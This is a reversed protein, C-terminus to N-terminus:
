KGQKATWHLPSLHIGPITLASTKILIFASGLALFNKVLQRNVASKVSMYTTRLTPLTGQGSSKFGERLLLPMGKEALLMLKEREPNDTRTHMEVRSTNLRRKLLQPQRERAMVTIDRMSANFLTM